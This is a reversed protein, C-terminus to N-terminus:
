REMLLRLRGALPKPSPRITIEAYGGRKTWQVRRVPMQDSGGFRRVYLLVEDYLAGYSAMMEAAIQLADEPREAEAEVIMIRDAAYVRSVAWRRQRLLPAREGM